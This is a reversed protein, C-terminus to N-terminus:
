LVPCYEEPKQLLALDPGDNLLPKGDEFCGPGILKQFASLYDPVDNQDRWFQKPVM